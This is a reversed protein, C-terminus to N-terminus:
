QYIHDPLPLYEETKQVPLIELLFHILTAKKSMSPVMKSVSESKVSLKFWANVTKSIGCRLQMMTRPSCM